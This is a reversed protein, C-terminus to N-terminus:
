REGGETLVVHDADHYFYAGFNIRYHANGSNSDRKCLEVARRNVAQLSEMSLEEALKSLEDVSAKSLENFQLSRELFPSHVGMVNSATAALHDRVNTALYFAKENIGKNPVFAEVNLHINDDADLHVVGLHLWDDLLVRPRIDLSFGRVLREFSDCEETVAYRPLPRPKGNEDLYHQDSVWISVIQSGLGVRQAVANEVDNASNRLRKVDKRHVGTLLSIRSDTQMKGDLKFNEEAVKIYTSKVLEQFAQFGMGYNVLLHILPELISAAARILSRPIAGLINDANKM